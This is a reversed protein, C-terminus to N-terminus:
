CRPRWTSRRASPPAARERAARVSLGAGFDMLVIRGAPERIINRAKVDRHILGNAHVAALARCVDEVIVSAERDTLM